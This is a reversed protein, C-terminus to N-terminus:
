EGCSTCMIESFSSLSVDIRIKEYNSGSNEDNNDGVIEALRTSTPEGPAIM